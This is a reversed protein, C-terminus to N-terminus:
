DEYIIYGQGRKTKIIDVFGLRDLKSRLRNINVTLTNDDVYEDNDWLYSMIDDRNVIVGKNKLLFVLIKLENKSLEVREGGKEIFSKAVDVILDKYLLKVDNNNRAFLRAIRALLIQPSYPKTIFDDAGYNICLLEDIETNKSTVIIIPIDSDKRIEKLLYEGDLVPLNIDLIVLDGYSNLVQEKVNSFDTILVTEYGNKILYSSLEERLKKEDEVIIIKM